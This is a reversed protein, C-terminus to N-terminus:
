IYIARYYEIKHHIQIYFTISVHKSQYTLNQGELIKCHVDVTDGIEFEPADAKLSDKEVLEM